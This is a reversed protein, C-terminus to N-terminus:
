KASYYIDNLDASTQDVEDSQEAIIGFMSDAVKVMEEGTLLVVNSRRITSLAASSVDDNKNSDTKALIASSDILGKDVAEDLVAKGSINVYEASDNASRIFQDVADPNQEAFKKSVIVGEEALKADPNLKDWESEYNVVVKLSSNSNIAVSAYPESLLVTSAEGSSVKELLAQMSECEALETKDSLGKSKMISNNILLANSNVGDKCYYVKKDALDNISKIQSDTSLVYQRCLGTVALLQVAKETEAYVSAATSLTCLALDIKGSLFLRSLKAEDEVVSVNYISSDYLKILAIGLSDNLLAVNIKDGKYSPETTNLVATVNTQSSSGVGRSCAALTLVIILALVATVVRKVNKM